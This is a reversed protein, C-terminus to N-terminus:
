KQHSNFLIGDKSNETSEKYIKKGLHFKQLYSKLYLLTLPRENGNNEHWIQPDSRIPVLTQLLSIHSQSVQQMEEM